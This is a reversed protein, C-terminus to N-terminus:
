WGGHSTGQQVERLRREFDELGSVEDPKPHYSISSSVSSLAKVVRPDTILEQPGGQQLKTLYQKAMKIANVTEFDDIGFNEDRNNATCLWYRFENLDGSLDAGGTNRRDCQNVARELLGKFEYLQKRQDASLVNNPNVGGSSYRDAADIATTIRTVRDRYDRLLVPTTIEIGLNLYQLADQRLDRVAAHYASQLSAVVRDLRERDARYSDALKPYRESADIISRLGKTIAYVASNTPLEAPSFDGKRLRVEAASYSAIVASLEGVTGKTELARLARLVSKIAPESNEPDSHATSSRLSDGVADLDRELSIASSSGKHVAEFSSYKRRADVYNAMAIAAARSAASEKRELGFLVDDITPKVDLKKAPGSVNTNGEEFCTDLAEYVKHLTSQQRVISPIASVVESLANRVVREDRRIEETSRRYAALPATRHALERRLARIKALHPPIHTRGQPFVGQRRLNRVVAAAAVLGDQIPRYQAIAAQYGAEDLKGGHNYDRHNVGQLGAELCDLLVDMVPVRARGTRRHVWVVDSPAADETLFAQHKLQEVVEALAETDRDHVNIGTNM